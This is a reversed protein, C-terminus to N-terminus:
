QLPSGLRMNPYIQLLLKSVDAHKLYHYVIYLSSIDDDRFIHILSAPDSEYFKRLVEAKAIKHLYALILQNGLDTALVAPM